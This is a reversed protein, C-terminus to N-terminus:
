TAWTVLETQIAKLEQRREFVKNLFGTQVGILMKREAIQSTATLRAAYLIKAAPHKLIAKFIQRAISTSGVLSNPLRQM